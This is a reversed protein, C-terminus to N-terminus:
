HVTWGPMWGSLLVGIIITLASALIAFASYLIIDTIKVADAEPDMPKRFFGQIITERNM